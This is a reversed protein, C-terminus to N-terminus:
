GRIFWDIKPKLIEAGFTFFAGPFTRRTCQTTAALFHVIAVFFPWNINLFARFHSHSVPITGATASTYFDTGPIFGIGWEM